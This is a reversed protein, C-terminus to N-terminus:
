PVIVLGYTGTVARPLILWSFGTKFECNEHNFEANQM